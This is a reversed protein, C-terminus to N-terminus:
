TLPWKISEEGRRVRAAIEELRKSRHQMASIALGDEILKIWPDTNIEDPKNRKFNSAAGRNVKEALFQDIENMKAEAQAKAELATRKQESQDLNDPNSQGVRATYWENVRKFLTHGHGDLADALVERYAREEAVNRNAKELDDRRGVDLWYERVPYAAVFQNHDVLTRIMDTADFFEDPPIMNIASPDLIYIGANVPIEKRPKEEVRTVRGEHLTFEGFPIDVQHISVGVTMAASAQDQHFEWMARFDCKTLIDANVVFFPADLRDRLLTLAGMTGLPKPELAYDIRVGLRTGDGLQERILESKHHLAIIIDTVGSRRLREIMIEILPKGDVAILPKPTSETLPRLRRGEGGAMIVARATLPPLAVLDELRLMDVVRREADLLPLHRVSRARMIELAETASLGAPGVLPKRNVVEDVKTDLSAGRAIARRIDGDTVVGAFRRDTDVVLAIQKGSRNVAELVARLSEGLSLTFASLDAM